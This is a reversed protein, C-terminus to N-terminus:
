CQRLNKKKLIKGIMTIFQKYNLIGFVVCAIIVNFGSLFENHIYNVGVFYTFILFCILTQRNFKLNCTKRIDVYRIVFLLAYAVLTSLSAAYLGIFRVLSIHCVVNAVAAFVTTVGNKKSQKQAVYIGGIFQALMSFVIACIMIPVQYSADMYEESFLLKFLWYNFSLVVICISTVIELMQNMTSSYYKDRDADNMTETASQQWSYHFVNFINQCLNPIKHAVALIANMSTGLYLSVISRDSVGVIWWSVSNPLMPVSYCVMKKGYNLDVAKVDIYKWVKSRLLMFLASIIDGFIYAYLLGALGLKKLFVFYLVGASLGVVFIINSLTYDELRKMGRLTMQCFSFIIEVILYCFIANYVASNEDFVVAFVCGTFVAFLMGITDIAFATSIIKKKSVDDITDLLFRFVAEGSAITLVPVLLTVYSLILDFTGYDSTSVWRTILPTMFFMIGKTCLVGFSLITTNKVLALERKGM